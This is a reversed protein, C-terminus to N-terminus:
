NPTKIIIGTWEKARGVAWEKARGVAWHGSLSSFIIKYFYLVGFQEAWQGTGLAWQKPKIKSQAEAWHGSNRLYKIQNKKKKNKKKRSQQRCIILNAAKSGM